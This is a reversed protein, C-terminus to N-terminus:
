MDRHSLLNLIERNAMDLASKLRKAGKPIEQPEEALTERVDEILLEVAEPNLLKETLM